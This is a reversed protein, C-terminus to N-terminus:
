GGPACVREVAQQVLIEIDEAGYEGRSAHLRVMEQIPMGPRITEPSYGMTEMHPRNSFLWRLDKDFLSVGDSMNDIITQLMERAAEVDRHAAAAEAKATDLQRERQRTETIDGTVGVMRRARGDADRVAIGHQRAWRWTGERGRYRFETDLRPIEGKYLAAIM